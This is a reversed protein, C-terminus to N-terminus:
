KVILSIAAQLQNDEQDTIKYRNKNKLAEDLEIEVNDECEPNDRRFAALMALKIKDYM